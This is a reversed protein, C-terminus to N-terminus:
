EDGDMPQTDDQERVWEPETGMPSEDPTSAKLVKRLQYDAERCAREFWRGLDEASPLPLHAEHRPMFM